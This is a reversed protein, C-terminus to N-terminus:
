ARFPETPGKLGHQGTQKADQQLVCCLCCWTTLCDTLFSGGIGFKQRLKNRNYWEACCIFGFCCLLHYIIMPINPCSPPKNENWSLTRGGPICPLFWALLCIPIDDLCGFLSHSWTATGEVM